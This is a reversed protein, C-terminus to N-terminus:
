SSKMIGVILFGWNNSYIVKVSSCNNRKLNKTADEITWFSFGKFVWGICMIGEIFAEKFKKNRINSFSTEILSSLRKPKPLGLIVQGRPKIVSCVQFLALEPNDSFQLVSNCIVLDFSGDISEEIDQIHISCKINMECMEVVKSSSDIGSVTYGREIMKGMLIGTGCGADLINKIEIQLSDVHKLIPVHMSMSGFFPSHMKNYSRSYLNFFLGQITKKIKKM